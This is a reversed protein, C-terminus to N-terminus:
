GRIRSIFLFIRVFLCVFFFTSNVYLHFSVMFVRIGRSLMWSLDKVSSTKLLRYPESGCSFLPFVYCLNENEAMKVGPM